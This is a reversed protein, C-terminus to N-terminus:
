GMDEWLRISYLYGDNDLAFAYSGAVVIDRFAPSSPVISGIKVPTTPTAIDCVSIGDTGNATYLHSGANIAAYTGYLDTDIRGFLEGTLTKAELYSEHHLRRTMHKQSLRKINLELWEVLQRNPETSQIIGQEIGLHVQLSQDNMASLQESTLPHEM